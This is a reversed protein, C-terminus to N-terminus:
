MYEKVVAIMKEIDRAQHEASIFATEFPSPPLLIGNKLLRKYLAVFKDKDANNLDSRKDPIKKMFFISFMSGFSSLCVEKIGNFEKKLMKGFYNLREYINENKLIKLTEAGAACVVPNGSFTGAQYVDGVPALQRMIERKGGVVGIPLGGGVIKGLCTLDPNVGSISQYGGFHFRFGTIVEDFILVIGAKETIKRLFSLYGTTPLIVGTNAMIPEVIIAAIENKNGKVADEIAPKDNFDAVITNDVVEKLLGKSMPLSQTALGSGAGVLFSDYHGHYAGDFKIIRSRGTFARALRIATMTAETGSNVFRMLEISPFGDKILAALKEEYINNLGFNMGSEIAKKAANIVFKNNHGLIAAGWSLIYDTFIENDTTTITKGQAAKVTFPALNVYGFSRVPSNVNGPFFNTLAAM